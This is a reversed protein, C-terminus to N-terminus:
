PKQAEDLVTKAQQILGRLQALLELNCTVRVPHFRGAEVLAQIKGDPGNLITVCLSDQTRYSAEFNALKTVSKEVKGLHDLGRLLPDIESYAISCTATRFPQAGEMATLSIGYDKKGLNVDTFEHSKITLQAGLDGSVTGIDSYGHIVVAGTKEQPGELRDAPPIQLSGLEKTSRTAQPESGPASVPQQGLCPFLTALSVTLIILKNM